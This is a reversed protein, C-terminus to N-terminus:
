YGGIKKTIAYIWADVEPILISIGIVLFFMWFMKDNDTSHFHGLMFISGFIVWTQIFGINYKEDSNKHRNEHHWILTNETCGNIKNTRPDYHASFFEKILKINM